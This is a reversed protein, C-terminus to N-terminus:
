KLIAQAEDFKRKYGGKKKNWPPCIYNIWRKIFSVQFGVSTRQLGGVAWSRWLQFMINEIGCYKEKQTIGVELRHAGLTVMGAAAWHSYKLLAGIFGEVVQCPSSHECSQETEQKPFLDACRQWICIRCLSIYQGSWNGSERKRIGSWPRSPSPGTNGGGNAGGYREASPAQRNGPFLWFGMGLFRYWSCLARTCWLLVRGKRNINSVEFCGGWGKSDSQSNRFLGDKAKLCM